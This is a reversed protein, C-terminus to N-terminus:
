YGWSLGLVFRWVSATNRCSSARPSDPFYDAMYTVNFWLRKKMAPSREPCGEHTCWHTQGKAHGPRRARSAKKGPRERETGCGACGEKGSGAAM